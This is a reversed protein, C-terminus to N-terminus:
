SLESLIVFVTCCLGKFIQKGWCRLKGVKFSSKSKSKINKFRLAMVPLSSKDTLEGGDYHSKSDDADCNCLKKAGGDCSKNKSCGCGFKGTNGGWYKM